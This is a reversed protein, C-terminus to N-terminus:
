APSSFRRRIALLTALGSSLLLLTSGADPVSGGGGNATCASADITDNILTVNGNQALLRGDVTVGAGLTISTLAMITGDFDSGLLNASSSVQWFVDCANAGENFAVSSGIATQLDAPIQFVFLGSGSLNLTGILNVTTGVDFKYVGPFLTQGSGLSNPISADFPAAAAADYAATLDTKAVGLLIPDITAGAPGAADVSYITGNVQVALLGIGAGTAPSLGVNGKITSTGGADSILPTGALIAFDAATKLDITTAATAHQHPFMAAVALVLGVLIRKSGNRVATLFFAPKMTHKGMKNTFDANPM